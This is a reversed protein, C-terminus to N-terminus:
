RQVMHGYKGKVYRDPDKKSDRQYAGDSRGEASWHGLIASIYSWKRKNQNIAERIADRIWNEPYEKEADRLEEAIMPTLLGINQEYLTFIDPKEEAEAYAQGAAKFGGLKLEGSKIQEVIKRNSENNLFYIDESVGENDLKVAIIVERSVSSNLAKILAEGPSGSVEQLGKMLSANELLESYTLFRPYKRKRYLAALVHLITKLEAMDTIQPLLSSFFLNPIPTFEMRAPFGSFQKM